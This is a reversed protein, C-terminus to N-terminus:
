PWSGIERVGGAHKRFYNLFSEGSAEVLGERVMWNWLSSRHFDEWLWEQHEDWEDDWPEDTWLGIIHALQQTAAAYWDMGMRYPSPTILPAINDKCASCDCWRGHDTPPRRANGPTWLKLNYHDHWRQYLVIETDGCEEGYVDRNLFRPPAESFKDQAFRYRLGMWDKMLMFTYLKHAKGRGRRILTYKPHYESHNCYKCEDGLCNIFVSPLISISEPWNFKLINYYAKCSLGLQVPSCADGEEKYIEFIRVIIERPFKALLIGKM